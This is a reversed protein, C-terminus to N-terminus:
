SEEYKALVDEFAAFAAVGPDIKGELGPFGSLIAEIQKELETDETAAQGDDQGSDAKASDEANPDPDEDAKGCGDEEAAKVLRSLSVDLRRALRELHGVKPCASTGALIGGISAVSLEAATALDENTLEKEDRLSRILDGLGQGKTQSDPNAKDVSEATQPDAGPSPDDAIAKAPQPLVKAFAVAIADALKEYDIEITPPATDTSSQDGNKCSCTKAMEAKKAECEPGCSKISVIRTDIGAGREVPAVHAVRAKRIVFHDEGDRTEVGGDDVFFRFSWEMSQGADDLAKLTSYYLDGVPTELFKGRFMAADRTEYTQGYGPPLSAFDHNYAGMLVDQDGIAGSEIVDGDLDVVGLTAFKAVVTRPDDDDQKLIFRKTKELAM